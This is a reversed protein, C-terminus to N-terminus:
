CVVLDCLLRPLVERGGGANCCRHKLLPRWHCWLAAMGQLHLKMAECGLVTSVPPRLLAQASAQVGARSAHM